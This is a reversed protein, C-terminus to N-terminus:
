NKQNVEFINLEIAQDLMEKFDEKSLVMIPNDNSRKPLECNARHEDMNLISKEYIPTISIDDEDSYKMFAPIVSVGMDVIFMYLTCNEYKKMILLHDYGSEYAQDNWVRVLGSLGGLKMQEMFEKAVLVPSMAGSVTGNKDRSLLNQFKYKKM